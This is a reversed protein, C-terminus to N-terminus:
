NNTILSKRNTVISELYPKKTFESTHEWSFIRYKELRKVVYENRLDITLIWHCKLIELYDFFREWDIPPTNYLEQEKGPYPPDLFVVDDGWCAELTEEWDQCHVWLGPLCYGELLRPIVKPYVSALQDGKRGKYFGGGAFSFCHVYLFCAAKEAADETVQYRAKVAAYAERTVDATEAPWFEQAAKGVSKSDLLITWWFDVLDQNIDAALVPIGRCCTDIEVSGGGLFPSVLRPPKGILQRLVPKWRAKAGPYFVPPHNPGPPLPFDLSGTEKGM